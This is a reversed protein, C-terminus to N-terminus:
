TSAQRPFGSDIDKINSELPDPNQRVDGVVRPDVRGREGEIKKERM